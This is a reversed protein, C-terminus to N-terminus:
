DFDSPIVTLSAVMAWYQGENDWDVLVVGPDVSHVSQVTGENGEPNSVRKAVLDAATYVTETYKAQGVPQGYVGYIPRDATDDVIINNDWVERLKRAYAELAAAVDTGTQMDANGLNITIDISAM